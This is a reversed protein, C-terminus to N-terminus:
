SWSEGASPPAGSGRGQLLDPGSHGHPEGRRVSHGGDAHGNGDAGGSAFAAAGVPREPHDASYGSGDRDPGDSRHGESHPSRAGQRTPQTSDEIIYKPRRRAEDLARWIYEGLVGLMIMQGGGLILVAVMISSWGQVPKGLLANLIVSLAYLLGCIAILFGAGSIWRIPLYSFSTLSDIVLKIKKALSWGSSGHLRPQKDYSIEAQPFGVWAVLAFLSVNRENFSRVADTVKRDILFFDAGTAPVNKLGALHRLLWYYMRSFAITSRREGERRARTAWVVHKGGRWLEIMDPILEPPDQLDAAMIVACDGRAQDMGCMIGLHTGFNRSFRYVRVREDQLAIASGVSYTGDTSHDDIIIWEWDMGTGALVDCLRRYLTPLNQEERYASTIVSLLPRDGGGARSANIDMPM